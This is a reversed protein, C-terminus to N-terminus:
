KPSDCRRRYKDKLHGFLPEDEKTCISIQSIMYLITNPKGSGSPSAVVCRLPLKFYPNKPFSKLKKKDIDEYLKVHKRSSIYLGIFM